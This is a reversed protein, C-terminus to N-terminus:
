DDIALGIFARSMALRWPMSMRAFRIEILSGGASGSAASVRRGSDEPNAYQRTM